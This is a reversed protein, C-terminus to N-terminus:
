ALKKRPPAGFFLLAIFAAAGLALLAIIIMDYSKQFDHIYGAVVAVLAAVGTHFPFMFGNISAFAPPSYYNGIMAPAIVLGSGMCFGFVSVSTILVAMNPAKWFGIISFFTCLSLVVAIWRPEILDAIFGIPIRGIGAALAVFGLAYAAQMRTYGLDTIHLVGHSIILALTLAFVFYYLMLVWLARTRIAEKLSWAETTRYTRVKRKADRAAAEKAREPSLGDPFQGYDAPKDKLWIIGITGVLSLGAAAIWAMQWSGSQIIIWTLFPQALFGGVSGGTSVISIALSRRRSFWYTLNTNVALQTCCSLGLGVILGWSVIYTWLHDTLTGLVLLGIVVVSGGMLITKKAGYRGIMYAAFPALFGLMLGRVTQAISADGRAWNMAKLMAPFIVGYGYYITAYILSYCLFLLVLNTWGYFGVRSVSVQVPIGMADDKM